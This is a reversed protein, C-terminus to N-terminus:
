KVNKVGEKFLRMEQSSLKDLHLKKHHDSCLPVQKRHIAAMQVTFFDLVNGKAKLKLDRIKRVHHMEIREYSGCIICM